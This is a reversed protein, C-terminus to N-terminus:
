EFTAGASLKFKGADPDAGSGRIDTAPAPTSSAKPKLAVAKARLNREIHMAASYPDLNKISEIESPNAALYKTILPGDPDKVIALQLSDPVGYSGVLNGAQQLEETTMGAELARKDYTKLADQVDKLQEQQAQQQRAAQEQQQLQQQYAFREANRIAQDRERLKVEFDADYPDPMEPTNNVSQQLSEQEKRKFEALEAELADARRKEEMKEFHKRNIARNIADQNVEGDNTQESESATTEAAETALESGTEPNEVAEQTVETEDFEIASDNQLEESM